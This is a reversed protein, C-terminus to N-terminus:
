PAANTFTPTNQIGGTTLFDEVFSLKYTLSITFSRRNDMKCVLGDDHPLQGTILGVIADGLTSQLAM